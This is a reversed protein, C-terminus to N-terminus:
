MEKLAKEIIPKLKWQLESESATSIVPSYNINISVAKGGAGLMNNPVINGNAPPVFLEPGQEGVIYPMGSRVPGGSARGPTTPIDGAGLPVGRGGQVGGTDAFWDFYQGTWRAADAAMGILRTEIEIVIKHYSPMGNIAQSLLDSKKWAQELM